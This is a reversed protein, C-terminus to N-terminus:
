HWYRWWSEQKFTKYLMSSKQFFNERYFRRDREGLTMLYDNNRDKYFNWRVTGCSYPLYIKNLALNKQHIIEPDTEMKCNSQKIRGM